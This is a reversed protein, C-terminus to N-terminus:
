FIWLKTFALGLTVMVGHATTSGDSTDLEVFTAEYRANLDIHVDATRLFLVGVGAYAGFGWKSDKQDTLERHENVSVARLGLGGGIYVGTDAEPDVFYRGGISLMWAFARPQQDRPNLTWAFDMSTDLAFGGFEWLGGFGLDLMPGSGAFNGPPVLTGFRFIKTFNSGRRRLPNSETTTVTSVGMTQGFPKGTAVAEAVRASIPELDGISAATARDSLYPQGGPGVYDYRVIVKEGLRSLGVVLAAGAGAARMLEPACAADGCPQPPTQGRPVVRYGRKALDTRLLEAFTHASDADVGIAAPEGLVVTPTPQQALAAGGWVLVTIFPLVTRM